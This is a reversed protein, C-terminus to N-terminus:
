PARDASSITAKALFYAQLFGVVINVVQITPTGHNVIRTCATVLRGSFKPFLTPHEKMIWETLSRLLDDASHGGLILDEVWAWVEAPVRFSLIEGWQVVEECLTNPDVMARFQHHNMERRVDLTKLRDPEEVMMGRLLQRISTESLPRFHMITCRSLLPEIIKNMYNCILIFRTTTESRGPADEIIRRLAYQSDLTLADAEDLIVLNMRTVGPVEPVYQWVFKKIRTRVVRIGRDESANLEMVREKIYEPPFLMRVLIHATTTKGTGPPGAFVMNPIIGREVFKRLPKVIHDQDRIGDLSTPRYQDTWPIMMRKM